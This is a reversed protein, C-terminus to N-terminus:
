CQKSPYLVQQLAERSNVLELAAEADDDEALPTAAYQSPLVPRALIEEKAIVLWNQVVSALEASAAAVATAGLAASRLEALRLSEHRADALRKLLSAPLLGWGTPGNGALGLVWDPPQTIAGSSSASCAQSAGAMAAASASTKGVSLLVDNWALQEM